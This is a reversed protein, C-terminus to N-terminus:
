PEPFYGADLMRAMDPITMDLHHVQAFRISGTVPHYPWHALKLLTYFLADPPINLALLYKAAALNAQNEQTRTYSSMPNTLARMMQSEALRRDGPQGAAPQEEETPPFGFPVTLVSGISQTLSAVKQQMEWLYYRQWAQQAHQYRVHGMLHAIVCIAELGDLQNMLGTSVFVSGDDLSFGIPQPSNFVVLNWAVGQIRAVPLLKVFADRARRVARGATSIQIDGRLREATARFPSGDIVGPPTVPRMPVDFAEYLSKQIADPWPPPIPPRGFGLIEASRPVTLMQVIMRSRYRQQTALLRVDARTQEFVLTRAPNAYYLIFWRRRFDASSHFEVANPLGFDALADTIAVDLIAQDRLAEGGANHPAAKEIADLSTGTFDATNVPLPYSGAAEAKMMRTAMRQYASPKGTSCAAAAFILAAAFAASLVRILRFRSAMGM